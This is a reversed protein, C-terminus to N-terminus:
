HHPTHIGSADIGKGDRHFNRRSHSCADSRRRRRKGASPLKGKSEIQRPELARYTVINLYSEVDWGGLSLEESRNWRNRERKKAKKGKRKEEVKRKKRVLECRCRCHSQHQTKQSPKWRGVTTRLKGTSRTTTNSRSTISGTRRSICEAPWIMSGTYRSM